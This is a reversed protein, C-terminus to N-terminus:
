HSFATRNGIAIEPGALRHATQKIRESAAEITADTDANAWAGKFILTDQTATGFLRGGKMNLFAPM